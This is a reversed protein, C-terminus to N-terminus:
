QAVTAIHSKSEQTATIETKRFAELAIENKVRLEMGDFLKEGRLCHRTYLAESGGPLEEGGGEAWRDRGEREEAGEALREVVGDSWLKRVVAM